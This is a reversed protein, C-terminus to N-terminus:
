DKLDLRYRYKENFEGKPLVHKALKVSEDNIAEFVVNVDDKYMKGARVWTEKVLSLAAKVSDKRIYLYEIKLNEDDRGILIMAKVDGTSKTSFLCLSLDPDYDMEINVRDIPVGLEEHLVKSVKLSDAHSLDGVSVASVEGTDNEDMSLKIDALKGKVEVYEYKKEYGQKELYSVLARNDTAAVDISVVRGTFESFNMLVEFFLLYTSDNERGTLNRYELVRIRGNNLTFAFIAKVEKDDDIVALAEARSSILLHFVPQSWLKRSDDVQTWKMHIVKM